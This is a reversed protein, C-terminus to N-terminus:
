FVLIELFSFMILILDRVKKGKSDRRTLDSSYVLEKDKGINKHSLAGNQGDYPFYSM